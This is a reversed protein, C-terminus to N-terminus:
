ECVQLRAIVKRIREAYARQSFEREYRSRCADSMSGDRVMGHINDMKSAWEGPRSGAAMLWGTTSDVIEPLGGSASALVPRGAALAEIAVTPLPDPRQSPVVVVDVKLLTASINRMEGLIHVSSARRLSKAISAVDVGQGAVPPAGLIWLETEHERMRDFAELLMEHGKWTNWRSAILFRTPGTNQNWREPKVLDFGNHIVVTKAATRRPLERRVADSVAVVATASGVLQGLFREVSGRLTEHVHVIVKNGSMRLFPALPSLTATNIFIIAGKHERLQILTKVTARAIKALGALNAYKRRIVPLDKHSFKIGEDALVRSLLRDGYNVDSPLWVEVEWDDRLARLTELLVRDAGYLEDSPHLFIITQKEPTNVRLPRESKVGARCRTSWSKLM